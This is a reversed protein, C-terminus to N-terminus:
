RRAQLVGTESAGQSEIRYYYQGGPVPAGAHNVGRWIVEHTGKNLVRSLLVAVESGREDFIRVSAHGAAPLTFSIVAEATFPNPMARSRFTGEVGAISEGAVVKGSQDHPVFVYLTETTENGMDDTATFVLTYTRGDGGGTREARLEVSEVATGIEAEIDNSGTGDDGSVSTLVWTAATSTEGGCNDSAEASIAITVMHHNPPWLITQGLEVSLEPPTTDGVSLVAEDTYVPGCFANVFCARYWNGDMSLTPAAITLSTDSEGALDSWNSGGDASVQWVVGSADSASASFTVSVGPCVLENSVPHETITPPAAITFASDSDDFSTADDVDIIRVLYDPDGTAEEVDVVWSYSGTSADTSDVITTWTAGGDDSLAVTLWAATIGATDWTISQTSGVCWEEGGNPATLRMVPEDDATVEDAGICPATASRADGDFDRTVAALPTGAGVVPSTAAVHLDGTSPSIFEPDGTISNSDKGTAAQYAALTAYDTGNYTAIHVTGSAGTADYLNYDSQLTGTRPNADLLRQSSLQSIMTATTHLINNESTIAGGGSEPGSLRLLTMSKGSGHAHISNNLIDAGSGPTYSLGVWVGVNGSSGSAITIMNNIVYIRAGVVGSGGNLSAVYLGASPSGSLVIRNNTVRHTVIATSRNTYIIVGYMEGTGLDYMRNGEITSSDIPNASATIYVGTIPTGTPIIPAHIQNNLVFLSGGGADRWIGVNRFNVIENEIVRTGNSLKVMVGIFTSYVGSADGILCNDVVNGDNVNSTSGGIIVVARILSPSTHRSQLVTSRVVNSDAGNALSIAALANTTHVNQITLDRTTGGPANSGDIIYHDGGNILLIVGGSISGTIVVTAGTDPKFTVTNAASMGTVAPLTYGGSPATYTGNSILFTVPGSVGSTTLATIAAAITTYNDGAAGVTYTGNLQAFARTYGILLLVILLTPLARTPKRRGDSSSENNPQM